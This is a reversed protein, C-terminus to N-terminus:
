ADAEGVSSSRNERWPSESSQGESKREALDRQAPDVEQRSNGTVVGHMIYADRHIIHEFFAGQRGKNNSVRERHFIVSM